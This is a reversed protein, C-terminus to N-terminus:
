EGSPEVDEKAEPLANTIASWILDVTSTLNGYGIMEGVKKPTLEPDEHVLGAFLFNKIHVIRKKDVQFSNLATDLDGYINELEEFANLDYILNREKDLNIKIPRIKVDSM